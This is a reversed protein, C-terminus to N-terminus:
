QATEAMNQYATEFDSERFLKTEISFDSSLLLSKSDPFREDLGHDWFKEVYFDKPGLLKFDGFYETSDLEVWEEKLLTERDKQMGYLLRWGVYEGGGANILGGDRVRITTDALVKGTVDSIKLAHEGEGISANTRGGAPVEFVDEGVEVSVSFNAQNDITVNGCASLGFLLILASLPLLLSHRLSKM